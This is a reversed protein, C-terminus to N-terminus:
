NTHFSDFYAAIKPSNAEALPTGAEIIYVTKGIIFYDVRKVAGKASMTLTRGASGEVQITGENLIRFKGKGQNIMGEKLTDLFYTVDAPRVALDFSTIAYQIKGANLAYTQNNFVGEAAPAEQELPIGPMSISYHGDPPSFVAIPEEKQAQMLKGTLMFLCGTLVLSVIFINRLDHNDDAIADGAGLIGVKYGEEKIRATAKLNYSVMLILNILPMFSLIFMLLTKVGSWGFGGALRFFGFLSCFISMLGFFCVLSLDTRSSFDFKGAVGAMGIYFLIGLILLRQGIALRGVDQGEADPNYTTHMGIAYDGINGRGGANDNSGKGSNNSSNNSSNGVKSGHGAYGANGSSAAGAQVLDSRSFIWHYVAQNVAFVSAKATIAISVLMNDTRMCCILLHSEETEGVAIGKYEITIGEIRSGWNEGKVVAPKGVQKFHPMETEILHMRMGVWKQISINDRAFGNAELKTGTLPDKLHLSRSNKVEQWSGPAFFELGLNTNRFEKPNLLAIDHGTLERQSSPAMPPAPPPPPAAPAPKKAVPPEWNDLNLAGANLDIEPFPTASPKRNPPDFTM